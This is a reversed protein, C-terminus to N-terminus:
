FKYQLETLQNTDGTKILSVSRSILINSSQPSKEINSFPKESFHDKEYNFFKM